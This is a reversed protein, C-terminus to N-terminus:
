LAESEQRWCRIPDELRLGCSGWGWWILLQIWQAGVERGLIERPVYCLCRSWWKSLCCGGKRVEVEVSSWGLKLKSV